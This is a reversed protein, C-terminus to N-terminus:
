LNKKKVVFFSLFTLGLLFFSFFFCLFFFLFFLFYLFFLFFFFVFFVLALESPGLGEETKKQQKTEKGKKAELLGFVRNEGLFPCKINTKAQRGKKDRLRKQGAGKQWKRKRQKERKIKREEKKDKKKTKKLKKTKNKNKKQRKKRRQKQKMILVVDFYEIVFNEKMLIKEIKTEQRTQEEFDKKGIKTKRIKLQTKTWVDLPQDSILSFCLVWSLFFLYFFFVWVSLCVFMFMPVFFSSRLLSFCLFSPLFFFFNCFFVLFWVLPFADFVKPCALKNDVM